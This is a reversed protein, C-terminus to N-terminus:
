SKLGPAAIEMRTTGRVIVFAVPTECPLARFYAVLRQPAGEEQTSGVVHDNAKIIIDDELLGVTKARGDRLASIRVGWHGGEADFMPEITMGWPTDCRNVSRFRLDAGRANLQGPNTAWSVDSIVLTLAVATTSALSAPFIRRRSM